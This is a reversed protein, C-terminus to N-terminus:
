RKEPLMAKLKLMDRPVKITNLLNPDSNRRVLTKNYDVLYNDIIDQCSVRQSPNIKLMKSILNSLEKSQKPPIPAYKGAKIKNQLGKMSDSNFPPKFTCLEYIVIGLSWIDCKNDQPKDAWIEPPCYYPTGTQTRAYGQKQLKSVNM